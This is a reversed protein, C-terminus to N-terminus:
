IKVYNYLNFQTIPRNLRMVIMTGEWFYNSLKILHEGHSVSHLFAADGSMIFFEGQIEQNTIALRTNRIGTGRKMEGFETKSSLGKELIKQLADQSDVVERGASKLSGLLGQGDDLICIECANTKPWYQAFLYLNEAQSHEEVNDFIEGLLFGFTNNTVLELFRQDAIINRKLLELYKSHLTSLQRTIEEKSLDKLRLHVIPWYTKQTQISDIKEVGDPFHITELYSKNEGQYTHKLSKKNILAAVPTISLPTVFKISAIEIEERDRKGDLYRLNPVLEKIRNITNFSQIIQIM